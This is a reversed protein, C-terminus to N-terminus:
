IKGWIVPSKKPAIVAKNKAKYEVSHQRYIVTGDDAMHGPQVATNVYLQFGAKRALDCFSIDEGNGGVDRRDPFWGAGEAEFEPIKTIAEILKRSTYVFGFGCAEIPAFVNPPFDDAFRYKEIEYDYSYFVPNYPPNRQYYVGTVFDAKFQIVSFLLNAMDLQGPRMDSDVWMIGNAETQLSTHAVINRGMSWGVRDPSADAEWRLGRNSCSMMNLRLDKACRPDIPGYSPSALVLRMEDLRDM